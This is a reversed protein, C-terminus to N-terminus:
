TCLGIVILVIGFVGVVITAILLSDETSYTGIGTRILRKGDKTRAGNGEPLFLRWVWFLGSIVIIVGLILLFVNV